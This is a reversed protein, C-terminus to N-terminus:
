GADGAFVDPHAAVVREAREVLSLDNVDAWDADHHHARLLLGADLVRRSLVPLGIPEGPDILAVAEPGLVSIASSVCIEYTPKEVYDLVRDGDRTIEGFPMPFPEDHVALTMAASSAEHVEVVAALDLSTVNDANVVVLASTPPVLAAAGISGLPPDEMVLSLRAERRELWPRCSEVLDIVDTAGAAVAVHLDRLGHHVLARLNLEVLPVGGVAVLPKPVVSGSRRMREGAGGAVVLAAVATM